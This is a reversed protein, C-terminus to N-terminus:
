QAGDSPMLDAELQGLIRAVRVSVLGDAQLQALAVGVANANEATRLRALSSRAEVTRAVMVEAYKRLKLKFQLRTEGTRKSDADFALFLAELMEEDHEVLPAGDNSPRKVDSSM